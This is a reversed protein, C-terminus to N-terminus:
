RVPGPADLSAGPASRMRKLKELDWVLVTTDASGSALHRGDPSFALSRVAAESAVFDMRKEGSEARWLRVTGDRTATAVISGDASFAVAKPGGKHGELNVLREKRAVDWIGVVECGYGGTALRMGDKSFTLLGPEGEQGWEKAVEDGTRVDLFRIKRDGSSTVLTKGDPSFAMYYVTVDMMDHALVEEGRRNYLRLKCKRKKQETGAHTSSAQVRIGATAITGTSSVVPECGYFGPTDLELLRTGTRVDWLQVRDSWGVVAFLPLCPNLSVNGRSAGFRRLAKGTKADWAWVAGFGGSVIQAGDKSFRLAGV